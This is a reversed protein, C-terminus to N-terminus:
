AIPDLINGTDPARLAAAITGRAAEQSARGEREVVAAGVGGVLLRRVRVDQSATLLSVVAGMSYGVVDVHLAGSLDFLRRLDTAMKEEGYFRTDHPKGSAGHGGRM